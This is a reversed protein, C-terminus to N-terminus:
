DTSTQDIEDQTTEKRESYMEFKMLEERIKDNKLPEYAADHVSHGLNTLSWINVNAAETSPDKNLWRWGEMEGLINAFNRWHSKTLGQKHMLQNQNMRGESKLIRLTQVRRSDRPINSVKKGGKAYRGHQVM